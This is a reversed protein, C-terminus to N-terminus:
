EGIDSIPEFSNLSSADDRQREARMEERLQLWMQQKELQFEAMMQQKEIKFKEEMEIRMKDLPSPMHQQLAMTPGSAETSGDSDDDDSVYLQFNGYYERAADQAARAIADEDLGSQLLRFSNFQEEARLTLAELQVLESKIECIQREFQEVKELTAAKKPQKQKQALKQFKRQEQLLHDREKQKAAVLCKGLEYALATNKWAEEVALKSYALISTHCAQNSATMARTSATAEVDLHDCEGKMKAHAARAAELEKGIAEDAKELNEEQMAAAENRIYADKHKREAEQAAQQADVMQQGTAEVERITARRVKACKEMKERVEAQQQELGAVLTDAVERKSTILSAKRQLADVMKQKAHIEHHLPIRNTCLLQFAQKTAEQVHEGALTTRMLEFAKEKETDNMGAVEEPNKHLCLAASWGKGEIDSLATRTGEVARKAVKYTKKLDKQMQGYTDENCSELLAGLDEEAAPLFVEFEATSAVAAAGFGCITSACPKLQDPALALIGHPDEKDYTMLGPLDKKDIHEAISAHAARTSEWHETVQSLFEGPAVVMAAFSTQRSGPQGTEM